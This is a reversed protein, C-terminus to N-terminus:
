PITIYDANVWGTLGKAKAWIYSGSRKGRNVSLSEGYYLKAIENADNYSPASRLALYHPKKCTSGTVVAIRWNESGDNGGAVDDLAEVNLKDIDAM